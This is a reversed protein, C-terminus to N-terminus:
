WELFCEESVKYKLRQQCSRGTLDIRKGHLERYVRRPKSISPVAALVKAGSVFKGRACVDEIKRMTPYLALTILNVKTVRSVIFEGVSLQEFALCM